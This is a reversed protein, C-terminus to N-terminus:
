KKGNAVWGSLFFFFFLYFRNSRRCSDFSFSTDLVLVLLFIIFVQVGQKPCSFNQDMIIALDPVYGSQWLFFLATVRFTRYTSMTFFFFFFFFSQRVSFIVETKQEELFPSDLSM